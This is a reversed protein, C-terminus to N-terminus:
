PCKWFCSACQRLTFWGIKTTRVTTEQAKKKAVSVIFLSLKSVIHPKVTQNPCSQFCFTCFFFFFFTALNLVLQELRVCFCRWRAIHVGTWWRRACVANVATEASCFWPHHRWMVDQGQMKGGEQCGRTRTVGVGVQRDEYGTPFLPM